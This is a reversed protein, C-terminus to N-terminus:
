TMIHVYSVLLFILNNLHEFSQYIDPDVSEKCLFCQASYCFVCQIRNVHNLKILQKGCKLCRLEDTTQKDIAHRAPHATKEDCYGLSHRFLHLTPETAFYNLGNTDRQYEMYGLMGKGYFKNEFNKLQLIKARNKQYYLKRKALIDEKNKRYYIKKKSIIDEKNKLHHIKKKSLIDEKNKAYHIRKKRLIDEKNQELHVKRQTLIDAKNQQYYEKKKKLIQENLEAKVKDMDTNSRCNEKLQLHKLLRQGEWGCVNCTKISNAM